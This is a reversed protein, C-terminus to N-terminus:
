SQKLKALNRHCCIEQLPFYDKLIEKFKQNSLKGISSNVSIELIGLRLTFDKSTRYTPLGKCFVVNFFGPNKYSQLIYLWRGQDKFFSHSTKLNFFCNLGYKESCFKLAFSVKICIVNKSLYLQHNNAAYSGTKTQPLTKKYM